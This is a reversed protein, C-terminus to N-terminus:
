SGSNRKEDDGYLSICHRIAYYVAQMRLRDYTEALKRMGIGIIGLEQVM